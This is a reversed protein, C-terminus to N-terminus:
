FDLTADAAHVLALAEARSIVKIDDAVESEAIGRAELSEREVHLSHGMGALTDLYRVSDARDVGSLAFFAGDGLYLVDVAHEDIGATVGVAARLGETYWISGYPAHNLTILVRKEAM